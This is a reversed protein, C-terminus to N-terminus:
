QKITKSKANRWIQIILFLYFTLTILLNLFWFFHKVGASENIMFNIPLFVTLNLTFYILVIVNFYFNEFIMTKANSYIKEKFFVLTMLIIIFNTIVKSYPQFERVDIKGFSVYKIIELMIYIVGIYGIIRMVVHNKKFLRKHYLNIFFILEILSFFLLIILNNNNGLFVLARSIVDIFLMLFLYIAFDKYLADLRKYFFVAIILGILLLIPSSFGAIRLFDSFTM